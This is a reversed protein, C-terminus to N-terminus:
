WAAEASQNGPQNNTAPLPTRKVTAKPKTSVFSPRGASQHSMRQWAGRAFVNIKNKLNPM